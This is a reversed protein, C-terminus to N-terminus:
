DDDESPPAESAIPLGAKLRRLNLLDNDKSKLRAKLEKIQEQAANCEKYKAAALHRCRKVSSLLTEIMDALPPVASGEELECAAILATMVEAPLAPARTGAGARAPRAGSLDVCDPAAKGHCLILHSNAWCAFDGSRGNSIFPRERCGSCAAVAVEGAANRKIVLGAYEAKDEATMNKAFWALHVKNTLHNALRDSRIDKEGCVPCVYVSKVGAMQEKPVQSNPFEIKSADIKVGGGPCFQRAGRGGFNVCTGGWLGFGFHGSPIRAVIDLAKDLAIQNVM